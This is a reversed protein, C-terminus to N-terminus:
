RLGDTDEDYILNFLLCVVDLPTYFQGVGDNASEAFPHILYEFLDGMDANSVAEPSMAIKEFQRVVQALQDRTDLTRIANEFDISKFM